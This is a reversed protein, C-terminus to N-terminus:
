RGKARVSRPVVLYSARWCLISREVAIGFLVLGAGLTIIGGWLSVFGVGAAIAVVGSAQLATAIIARM